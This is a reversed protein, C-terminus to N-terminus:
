LQWSIYLNIVHFIYRRELIVYRYKEKQYKKLVVKLSGTSLSRSRM